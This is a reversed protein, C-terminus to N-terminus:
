GAIYAISWVAKECIGKHQSSLLHVLYPLAGAKVVAQTQHSTGSSINALIWAVELQM